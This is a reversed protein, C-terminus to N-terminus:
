YVILSNKPIITLKETKPFENNYEEVESLLCGFVIDFTPNIHTYDTGFFALMDQKELLSYSIQGSMIYTWNISNFSSSNKADSILDFIRYLLEFRKEEFEISNVYFTKNNKKFVANGANLLICVEKELDFENLENYDSIDFEDLIYNKLANELNLAGMINDHKEALLKKVYKKNEDKLISLCAVQTKAGGIDTIILNGEFAQNYFLFNNAIALISSFLKLEITELNLEKLARIFLDKLFNKERENFYLPTAVVIKEISGYKTTLKKLYEKIFIYLIDLYSFDGYYINEVESDTLRDILCNFYYYSYRYNRADYGIKLNKNKPNDYEFYVATPIMNNDEIVIYDIKENELIAGKTYINGIDIAVIKGM